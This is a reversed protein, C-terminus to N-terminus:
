GAAARVAEEYVHDRGFVDLERSLLDSAGPREARLAHVPEGDAAVEAIEDSPEHALEIDRGLRSRLWGALLLADAHPGRVRLTRLESIAPWLSALASRWALTRTWAIDSVAARDFLRELDHYPAPLDGWEGSDVVLRDAVDVLEDFHGAGFPPRGRWRLFVPLDSILLPHVISAPHNARDGRMHLEVVESCVHQSTGAGLPFCRLSVQADLRGEGADPDPVLLLTRSPHREALGALTKRAAPLWDEPAWAMHTMVSTRLDPGHDQEAARLNSLEREIASVSVDEGTWEDVHAAEAV